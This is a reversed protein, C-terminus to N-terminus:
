RLLEPNEHINGIVEMIPQNTLYAGSYRLGKITAHVLRFGCAAEIWEVVANVWIKEPYCLRVIDGEFIEKGNKDLLGTFQMPRWDYSNFNTLDDIMYVERQWARGCDNDTFGVSQIMIKKKSDWARFKISRM